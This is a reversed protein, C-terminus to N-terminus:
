AGHFIDAAGLYFAHTTGDVNNFAAVDLESFHKDIGIAGHAKWLTNQSRRRLIRTV